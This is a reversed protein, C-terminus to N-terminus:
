SDSNAAKHRRANHIAAVLLPSMIEYGALNPHVGDNTMGPTMGGTSSALADYYNVFGINESRSVRSMWINLERIISSPEVNPRWPYQHVPLISGIVVAIGQSKAMHIMTLLDNKFANEDFPRGIGAVNNTGILVHVVEPHLALVDQNFRARLEFTTQSSIGRSVFGLKRLEPSGSLWSETISDGILVAVPRGKRSQVFNEAKYRCLNAPDQQVNRTQADIFRQYEAALPKSDGGIKLTTRVISDPPYPVPKPCVFKATPTSALSSAAPELLTIAVFSAPYIINRCFYLIM